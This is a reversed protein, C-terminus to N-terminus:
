RAPWSTMALLGDADAFTGVLAPVIDTADVAACAALDDGLGIAVTARGADSSALAGRLDGAVKVERWVALAIRAGEGLVSARGADSAARVLAAALYGACLTDDYAPRGGLGSCVFVVDAADLSVADDASVAVPSPAVSNAENVVSLAARTVASANRLAGAFVSRGGSCARLAGTGNTTAYILVCGRLDYGALESPSNGLDFGPPRAGGVEGALLYGSGLRERAALAEARGPALLVRRVGCEFQACLTTTARVVDIVVYTTAQRAEGRALQSPARAVDLTLPSTTTM